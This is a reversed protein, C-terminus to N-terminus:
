PLTDSRRKPPRSTASPNSCGGTTSGTSGNWCPTNSPKSRGGLAKLQASVETPVGGRVGSDVEAKKVWEHLTQAACGIKAAISVVAAWRSAHDREHDLVMRVARERVESAYKNTMKSTM